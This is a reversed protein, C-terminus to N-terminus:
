IAHNVISADTYIKRYRNRLSRYTFQICDTTYLSTIHLNSGPIILRGKIVWYIKYGPYYRAPPCVSLSLHMLRVCTYERNSSSM